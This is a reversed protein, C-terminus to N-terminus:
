LLAGIFPAVTKVVIGATQAIKKVTEVIGSVKEAAVGVGELQDNIRELGREIGPKPDEAKMAQEMEPLAKNVLVSKAGDPLGSRNIEEQLLKLMETIEERGERSITVTATAGHGVAIGTGSIDGTKISSDGSSTM